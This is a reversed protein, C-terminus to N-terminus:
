VKGEPARNEATAPAPKGDWKAAMAAAFASIDADEAAEFLREFEQLVAIYDQIRKNLDTRVREPNERHRKLIGLNSRYVKSVPLADPGFFQNVMIQQMVEIQMEAVRECISYYVMQAMRRAPMLERITKINIEGTM